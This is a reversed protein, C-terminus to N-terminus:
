HVIENAFQNGVRCLRMLSTIQNFCLSTLSNIQQVMSGNTFQNSAGCLRTMSLTM